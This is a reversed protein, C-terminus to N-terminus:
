ILSLISFVCNSAETDIDDKSQNHILHQLGFKIHLERFKLFILWKGFKELSSKLSGNMLFLPYTDIQGKTVTQFYCYFPVGCLLSCLCGCLGYVRKGIIGPINSSITNDAIRTALLSCAVLCWRWYQSRLGKLFM